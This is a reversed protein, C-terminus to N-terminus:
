AAARHELRERLNEPVRFVSMVGNKTKKLFGMRALSELDSRATLYSVGHIELHSAITYRSASHKLAHQILTLQRRNLQSELAGLAKGLAKLEKSKAVLYKQLEDISTEIVELQHDIFYTVDGEDTETYLFATGYKVPARRIVASISVFELLWYGHRLVCWYFLARACRGNGDWFPHDYALLFHLLIARIIPHLFEGDKESPANAFECLKNLRGNLQNAPPPQHLTEDTISDVVRVDDNASRLVGVMEPRELTDKTLIRHIEFIRAPTLPEGCHERVFSMAEYNNLVMREDLTKPARGEEIMKKAVERTTAAGELASSSFPEEILSKQLYIDRGEATASAGSMGIIGRANSDIEHLTRQFEPRPVYSFRRGNKDKFPLPKATFRRNLKTLAWVHKPTLPKPAPRFRVKDWHDYTTTRQYARRLEDFKQPSKVMENFIADADPPVPPLKM